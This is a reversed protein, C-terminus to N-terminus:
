GLNEPLRWAPICGEKEIQNILIGLGRRLIKNEFELTEIRESLETQCHDSEKIKKDMQDLRDQLKKSEANTLEVITKAAKTIVDTAEAGAKKKSDKGIWVNVLVTLVGIIIIGIGDQSWNM